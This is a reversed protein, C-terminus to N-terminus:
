MKVPLQMRSYAVAMACVSWYVIPVFTIESVSSLMILLGFIAGILVQGLEHVESDPRTKRMQMYVRALVGVFFLLYITLGVVGTNLAVGIYNNVIDIIGQGQRLDELYLWYDHSGFYFNNAIVELSKEIVLQM